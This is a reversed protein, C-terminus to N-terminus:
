YHRLFQFVLYSQGLLDPVNDAPTATSELIAFLKLSSASTSTINSAEKNIDKRSMVALASHGLLKSVIEDKFGLKATNETPYIPPLVLWEGIFGDLSPNVISGM